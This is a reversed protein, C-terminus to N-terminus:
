YAPQSDFWGELLQVIDESGISLPGWGDGVEQVSQEESVPAWETWSDGNPDGTKIFNVWYGNMQAAIEYDEDQWPLDTAYLNNLVYNIESEHHAGQDQGPPAHDWFYNYVPNTINASSARLRSWLWTGVKSRDIWQQNEAASATASDNAPYSQWFLASWPDTYTTNIFDLYEDLTVTLGYTAGNEDRTNGTIVPVDSALGEVLTNLYTDPIAYYDLVASFGGGISGGSSGLITDLPLERLEAISTVNLSALFEEGSALADDLTVYGDALKEPDRPDRVGSEIIAAVFQGKTLPSNLIHYTAAAGASQGQVVVHDPDGGFAEINDRIWQLAAFQDYLGWNGSSNSGTAAEFEASLEPHALWGFADARYNYNVFVIGKDAIGGGDFLADSSSSGAPHSWLVVPLKDSTSNAASWINLNLCDEDITYQTGSASGPCTNGWSSALLTTNWPDVPQPVKFRNQGGTSAAFPIGKWVTVDAWNQLNVGVPSSNFAPYGQVPGNKTQVVTDYLAASAGSALSLGATAITYRLASM